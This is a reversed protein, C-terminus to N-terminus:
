SGGWVPDNAFQRRLQEDPNQRYFEEECFSYRYSKLYEMLITAAANIRQMALPDTSSNIDPHHLRSLQRHRQKVQSMTLLDHETFGFIALAAKLDAFTM